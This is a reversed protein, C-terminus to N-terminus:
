GRRTRARLRVIIAGHGGFQTPASRFGQIDESCNDTLTEVVVGPLVAGVRGSHNGRGCVVILCRLGDARALKVAQRLATAAKLASMGHLDLDRAPFLPGHRLEEIRSRPVDSSYALVLEESQELVLKHTLRRQTTAEAERTVHPAPVARARAPPLPKVAGILEAFPPTDDKKEVM